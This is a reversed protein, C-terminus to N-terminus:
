GGELEGLAAWVARSLGEVNPQEFFRRVPFPIGFEAQILSALAAAQRSDGGADFYDESDRVARGLVEGMMSRIRDQLANNDARQPLSGSILV